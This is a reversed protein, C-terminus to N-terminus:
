SSAPAARQVDEPFFTVDALLALQRHFVRDPWAIARALYRRLRQNPPLGSITWGGLKGSNALSLGRGILLWLWFIPFIALYLHIRESLTPDAVSRAALYPRLFAEWEAPSLLDEQNAHAQLDAVDRAPDRLGSDEWDVMGLRGDPRSIVNAFRADSRCFCLVPPIEALALVTDHRADMLELFM